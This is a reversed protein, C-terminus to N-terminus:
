QREAVIEIELDQVDAVVVSPSIRSSVVATEGSLTEAEFYEANPGYLEGEIPADIDISAGGETTLQGAIDATFTADGADSVFDAGSITLAGDVPGVTAFDSTMGVREIRVFDSVSGSADDGAFDAELEVTGLMAREVVGDEVTVAALGQYTASGIPALAVFPTEGAASAEDGIRQGELFAENPDDFAFANPEDGAGGGGCAALLGVMSVAFM